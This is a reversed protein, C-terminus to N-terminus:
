TNVIFFFISNWLLYRRFIISRNITSFKFFFSPIRLPCAGEGGRRKSNVDAKCHSDSRLVHSSLTATHFLHDFWVYHKPCNFYNILREHFCHSEFSLHAQSAHCSPAIDYKAPWHSDAKPATVSRTLAEPVSTNYIANQTNTHIRITLRNLFM